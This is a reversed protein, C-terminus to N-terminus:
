LEFLDEFLEEIDSFDYLSKKKEKSPLPIWQISNIADICRADDASSSGTSISWSFSTDSATTTYYLM